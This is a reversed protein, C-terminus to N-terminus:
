WFQHSLLIKTPIQYISVCVSVSILLVLTLIYCKLNLQHIVGNPEDVITMSMQIKFYAMQCKLCKMFMFSM